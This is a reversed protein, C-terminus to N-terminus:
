PSNRFNYVKEGWNEGLADQNSYFLSNLYRKQNINCSLMLMKNINLYSVDLESTSARRNDNPFSKENWLNRFQM